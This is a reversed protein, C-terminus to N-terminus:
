VKNLDLSIHTHTQTISLWAPLRDHSCLSLLTNLFSSPFFCLVKDLTNFTHLHYRDCTSYIPCTDCSWFLFSLSVNVTTSLARIGSPIRKARIKITFSTSGKKGLILLVTLAKAYSPLSLFVYILKNLHIWKDKKTFCGRKQKSLIKKKNSVLYFSTDVQTKHYLSM